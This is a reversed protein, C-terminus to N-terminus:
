SHGRNTKWAMQLWRDFASSYVTAYAKQNKLTHPFWVGILEKKDYKKLFESAAKRKEELYEPHEDWFKRNTYEEPAARSPILFVHRTKLPNPFRVLVDAHDSWRQKVPGPLQGNEIWENMHDHLKFFCPEREGRNDAGGPHQLTDIERRYAEDIRRCLLSALALYETAKQIDEEAGYSHALPNRVGMFFGAMIRAFGKQEDKKTDTALDSFALIPNKESFVHEALTVGDLDIRTLERLHHSVAKAGEEVAQAYYGDQFLKSCGRAIRSHLQELYRYLLRPPLNEEDVQELANNM